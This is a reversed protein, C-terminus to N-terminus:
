INIYMHIYIRIHVSSYQKESYASVVFDVSGRCLVFQFDNDHYLHNYLISKTFQGSHLSGCAYVLQYDNLGNLVKWGVYFLSNLYLLEFM